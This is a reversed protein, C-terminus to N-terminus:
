HSQPTLAISARGLLFDCVARAYTVFLDFTWKCFLVYELLQTYSIAKM